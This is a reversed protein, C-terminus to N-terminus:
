NLIRIFFLSNNVGLISDVVLFCLTDGDSNLTQVATTLFGCFFAFVLNTFIVHLCRITVPLVRRPIRVLQLLPATLLIYLTSFILSFIANTVTAASIRHRIHRASKTNCTADILVNTNLYLNGVFLVTLAVLPGSANITTLTSRNIFGNIVVDSTTGCALRFLGNLILPVAFGILLPAVTKAAVSGAVSEGRGRGWLVGRHTDFITLTSHDGNGTVLQTTTRLTTNTDPSTPVTSAHLIQRTTQITSTAAVTTVGSIMCSGCGNPILNFNVSPVNRSNALNDDLTRDRCPRMTM